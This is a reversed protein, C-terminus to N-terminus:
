PSRINRIQTLYICEADKWVLKLVMKINYECRRRLRRFQRYEEPNLVFDEICKQKGMRAVHRAWRMKKSKIVRIVPLSYIDHLEKSHLERWERTVNERKRGYMNGLVRNELGGFEGRVTLFL